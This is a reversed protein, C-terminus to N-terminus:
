ATRRGRAETAAGPRFVMLTAVASAVEQESGEERAVAHVELTATGRTALTVAISAPPGAIAGTVELDDFTVRSCHADLHSILMLVDQGIARFWSMGATLIAAEMVCLLPGRRTGGRREAPLACHLLAHGATLDVVTVGLEELGLFHALPPLWEPQNRPPKSEATV